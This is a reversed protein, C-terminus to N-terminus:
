RYFELPHGHVGDLITDQHYALQGSVITSDISSQFTQNELPSWGCQYYLDNKKITHPHKLDIITLDAWYGERIYGRDKVQFM